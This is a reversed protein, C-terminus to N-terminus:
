TLVPPLTAPVAFWVSWPAVHLGFEPVERWLRVPTAVRPLAVAPSLRCHGATESQGYGCNGSKAPRARGSTVIIEAWHGWLYRPYLVFSAVTSRWSLPCPVCNPASKRWYQYLVLTTAFVPGILRSPVNEGPRKM